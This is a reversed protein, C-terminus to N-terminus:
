RGNASREGESRLLPGPWLNQQLSEELKAITVMDPWRKGHLVALLTTHSIEATRAVDRITRDGIARAVAQAFARAYLVVRPGAVRGDPWSGDSVYAAPPQLNLRSSMILRRYAPGGVSGRLSAM